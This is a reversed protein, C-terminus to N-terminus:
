LTAVEVRPSSRDLPDAFEVLYITGPPPKTADKVLYTGDPRRVSAAPFSGVPGSKVTAPGPSPEGPAEPVQRYVDIVFNDDPGADLPEPAAFSLEVEGGVLAAVGPEPPQPPAGPVIRTSAPASPASWIGALPAGAFSGGPEPEGQAEARWTYTSWPKLALTPAWPAPGADVFQPGEALPKEAIVPMRLPDAGGARSRRLRVTVARPGGEPVTVTLRVRTPDAPDPVAQLLPVAPAPTSPVGFVLLSCATFGAEAGLPSVPVVRYFALVGLSGSVEDDYHMPGGSPGLPTPTLMEFAGKGFVSEHDHFVKARAPADPAARVQDLIAGEGAKILDRVLTPEDSRYLNYGADGGVGGWALRVRSRGLGDPRSGYDLTNVIKLPGPPRGDSAEAHAMAAKSGGGDSDVWHGTVILKRREAPSLAPVAFTVLLPEQPPEPPLPTPGRVADAGDAFPGGPGVAASLELRQLPWGGPPLRDDRPQMCRVELKGPEGEVAPPAFRAELVPIPVEPRKGTAFEEVEWESWRGFWDCQAVRYGLREAPAHRDIVEGQGAASAGPANPMEAPVGCVIALARDPAGEVLDSLRPNLSAFEPDQRAFAVTAAPGLGGLRLAFHRRAAPPTEPVWGLDEGGRLEVPRVPAPEEGVMVAAVTHLDLFLGEGPDGVSPPLESEDFGGPPTVPAGAIWGLRAGLEAPRVMFAGRVFYLLLEGPNAPPSEDHEVLGLLRGVGPDLAAQLVTALPPVVAMSDVKPGVLTEPPMRLRQQSDPGRVLLAEVLPELRGSWLAAVRQEEDDENAPPCSEPGGAEPEDHLGLRRPAGRRVRCIAAGWPNEVSRYRDADEVPLALPELPDLGGPYLDGRRVVVVGSIYGGGSIRLRDIGTACVQWPNTAASAVISPGAAGSVIADVRAEHDPADMLVRAWIIPNGPETPLWATVPGVKAVDITPFVPRGEEDTFFVNAKEELSVGIRPVGRVVQLPAVPLGLAFSPLARVHVGPPLHPDQTADLAQASFLWSPALYSM